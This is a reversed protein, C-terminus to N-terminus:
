RLIGVTDKAGDNNVAGSGERVINVETRECDRVPVIFRGVGQEGTDHVGAVGEDWTSRSGRRGAIVDQEIALM